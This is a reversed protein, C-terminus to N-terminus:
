EDSAEMDCYAEFNGHAQLRDGSSAASARDELFSVSFGVPLGASAKDIDAQSAASASAKAALAIAKAKDTVVVVQADDAESKGIEKFGRAIWISRQGRGEDLEVVNVKPASAGGMDSNIVHHGATEAPLSARFQTWENAFGQSGGASADLRAVGEGAETDTKDWDRMALYAKQNATFVVAEIM